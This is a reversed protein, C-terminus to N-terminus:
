FRVERDARSQNNPDPTDNRFRSSGNAGDLSVLSGRPFPEDAVVASSSRRRRQADRGDDREGETSPGGRDEDELVTGASPTEEEKAEDAESTHQTVVLNEQWPLEWCTEGTIANHYYTDGSDADVLAEWAADHDCGEEGNAACNNHVTDRGSASKGLEIEGSAIPNMIAGERETAIRERARQLANQMRSVVFSNHSVRASQPLIPEFSGLRLLAAALQPRVIHVIALFCPFTICLDITLCIMLDFAVSQQARRADDTDQHFCFTFIFLTAFMICIAGLGSCILAIWPAGPASAPPLTGREDNSDTAFSLNRWTLLHLAALLVHPPADSEKQRAIWTQTQAHLQVVECPLCALVIRNWENQTVRAAARSAWYSSRPQVLRRSSKSLVERVLGRARNTATRDQLLECLRQELEEIYQKAQTIATSLRLREENVQLKVMPTAGHFLARTKEAVRVLSESLFIASRIDVLSTSTAPHVQPLGDIALKHFLMAEIRDRDDLRRVASLFLRKFPAVCVVISATQLLAAFIALLVAIFGREALNSWRHIFGQDAFVSYSLADAYIFFILRMLVVPGREISASAPSLLAAVLHERCLSAYFDRVSLQLDPSLRMQLRRTSIKIGKEIQKAREVASFM